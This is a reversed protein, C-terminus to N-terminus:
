LRSRNSTAPPCDGEARTDPVDIALSRWQFIGSRRSPGYVQRSQDTSLDRDQATRYEQEMAM